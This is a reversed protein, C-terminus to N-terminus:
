PGVLVGAQVPFHDSPYRESDTGLLDGVSADITSFSLFRAGTAGLRGFVFDIRRDLPDRGFGNWTAAPGSPDALAGVRADVLQGQETLVRYVENEETINFDGVLVLPDDGAVDPIRSLVLRAGEVRAKQGKHDLHVNMVVLRAGGEKERLRAWTAVRPCAADWGMSGAVEPTESLWFTGSGMCEFRESRFYVCCAEGGGDVERGEGVRLYGPLGADVERLMGPLAEQVGVVDMRRLVELAAERRFPWADLGDRVTDMRLNFSGVEVLSGGLGREELGSGRCGLAIM